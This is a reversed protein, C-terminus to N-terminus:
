LKSLFDAPHKLLGEVTPDYLWVAYTDRTSAAPSRQFKADRAGIRLEYSTSQTQVIVHGLTLKELSSEPPAPLDILEDATLVSLRSALADSAVKDAAQGNCTWTNSSKLLYTRSTPTEILISVIPDDKLAWLVRSRWNKLALSAFWGRVMGSALFVNPKEPFRVYGQAMGALPKGLVLGGLRQPGKFFEVQVGSAADVEFEAARDARDSIENEVNLTKLMELAQSVHEADAPFRDAGASVLWTKEQRLFQLSQGGRQVKWSDAQEVAKQLPYQNWRHQWAWYVISVLCLTGSIM